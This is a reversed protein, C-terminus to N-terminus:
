FNLVVEGASINPPSISMDSLNERVWDAAAENSRDASAQDDYVSITVAEGNSTRVLYYAQFGDIEGIIRRVEAENEVLADVLDTNGAYYRMSSYVPLEKTLPRLSERVDPRARLSRPARRLAPERRAHPHVAVGTGRGDRDVARHGHARGGGAPRHAPGHGVRRGPARLLRLPRPPRVHDRHRDARRRAEDRGHLRRAGHGHTPPPRPDAFASAVLVARRRGRLLRARARAARRAGPRRRLARARALAGDDGRLARRRLRPPRAPGRRAGGDARPPHGAAPDRPHVRPDRPDARRRAPAPAPDHAHDAGARRAPRRALGARRLGGAPRRRLVGRAVGAGRTRPRGGVGSPKSPELGGRAGRAVAARLAGSGGRAVRDARSRVDVVRRRRRARRATQCRMASKPGTHPCLDAVRIRSPRRTVRAPARPLTERISRKRTSRTAGGAQAAQPAGM